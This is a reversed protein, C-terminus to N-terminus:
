SSPLSLPLPQTKSSPPQAPSSQPSQNTTLTVVDTFRSPLSLSPYTSNAPSIILEHLPIEPFVSYQFNSRQVHNPMVNFNLPCVFFCRSIESPICVCSAGTEVQRSSWRFTVRLTPVGARSQGTICVRRDYILDRLRFSFFVECSWCSQVCHAASYEV